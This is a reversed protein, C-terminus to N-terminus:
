VTEVSVLYNALLIYNKWYTGKSQNFLSRVLRFCTEVMLRVDMPTRNVFAVLIVTGWVLLLSAALCMWVSPMLVLLFSWPDVETAGKAALLSRDDTMVDSTLGVIDSREKTVAFPGLALDM